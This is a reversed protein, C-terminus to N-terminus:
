GEKQLSRFSGYDDPSYDRQVLYKEYILYDEIGFYNCLYWFTGFLACIDGIIKIWLSWVSLLRSYQAAAAFFLM